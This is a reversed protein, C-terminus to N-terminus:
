VEIGDIKSTKTSKPGCIAFFLELQEDPVPVAAGALGASGPGGLNVEDSGDSKM